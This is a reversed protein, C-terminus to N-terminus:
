RVPMLGRTIYDSPTILFMVFLFALAGLAFFRVLKSNFKLHMFFSMVFYVKIVAIVMAIPLNWNGWDFMAAVLTIILLGMLVGIVWLYTLPEVIHAKVREDPATHGHDAM